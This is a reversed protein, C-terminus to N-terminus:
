PTTMSPPRPLTRYVRDQALSLGTLLVSRALWVGLACSTGAASFLALLPLSVGQTEGRAFALLTDLAWATPMFPLDGSTLGAVLAVLDEFGDPALFREPEAFRFAVYLVLFGVVALVVMLDRTRRAPLWRALILTVWTGMAACLVTLPFLVLPISFYFWIPAGLVPGVGAFVPVAFVLVMWSSQSWTQSLRALYLRGVPIPSSVLLSLDEALFFSSFGAILSSFILLGSFFILTIDLVRRILLEALFEAQLFQSFLWYAGWATALMFILALGGFFVLRLRDKGDRSQPSNKLSRWHVWLLHWFGGAANGM